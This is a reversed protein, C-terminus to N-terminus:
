QKGIRGSAEDKGMETNLARAIPSWHGVGMEQVLRTPPSSFLTPAAPGMPCALGLHDPM